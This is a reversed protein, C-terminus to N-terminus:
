VYDAKVQQVACVSHLITIPIQFRYPCCYWLMSQFRFKRVFSYAARTEFKKTFIVRIFNGEIRRILHNDCIDIIAFIIKQILCLNLWFKFNTFFIIIISFHIRLVFSNFVMKAQMCCRYSVARNARYKQMLHLVCLGPNSNWRIQNTTTIYYGPFPIKPLSYTRTCFAPRYWNLQKCLM